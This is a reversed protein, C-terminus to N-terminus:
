GGAPASAAPVRSEVCERDTGDVARFCARVPTGPVTLTMHTYVYTDAQTRTGVRVTRGGPTVVLRDGIATGWMRAWSAGCEVSYRLEVWAGGATHRDALTVPQQACRTTLPDAGECAAGRCLPGTPTPAPADQHPPPVERFLGLAATVVAALACAAALVTLATTGRHGSPSPPPGPPPAPASEPAPPPQEREPHPRARAEAEASGALEWLALCRAPDEGALGCLEEVATRPPLTRGGLYRDWSSKSYTTKVALGALSLGTRDKLEGLAFALRAREPSTM